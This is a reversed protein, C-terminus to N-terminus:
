GTGLVGEIDDERAIEHKLLHLVLDYTVTDKGNVLELIENYAHIAVRQRELAISLIAGVDSFDVATPYSAAPSLEVFRTPDGTVDGGLQSIREALKRAHGRAEEAKEELEDTLLFLAQGELAAQTALCWHMATWEWAYMPNLRTAVETPDIGTVLARATSGM